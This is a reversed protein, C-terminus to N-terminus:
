ICFVKGVGRILGYFQIPETRVALTVKPGPEHGRWLEIKRGRITVARQIPSAGRRKARM